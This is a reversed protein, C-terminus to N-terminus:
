PEVEEYTRKFIDRDCPYVEGDVGVILMDGPEAVVTGERTEIEVRQTVPKADIVVPRKRYQRWDNTPEGAEVDDEALREM